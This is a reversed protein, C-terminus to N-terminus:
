LSSKYKRTLYEVFLRADLPRGTVDKALADGSGRLSGQEHIRANLWQKLPKFSGVAIEKKLDPVDQKSSLFNLM